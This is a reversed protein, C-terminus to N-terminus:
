NFIKEVNQYATHVREVAESIDKKKSTKVVEALQNLDTELQAVAADFDSQRESLRASLQAEKLPGMKETMAAVTSRISELDYGPLYYHYIKYLEQHFAELEAVLPRITRVLREYYMHFAETQALMEEENDSDAAQHLKELSTKLDQKGQDWNTQKDRLIGPLEAQDLKETLADLQPLLEKILAYDKEPFATHWLPYVVEHLEGLEPVSASIEEQAIEVPTEEAKQCSILCFFGLFLLTLLACIKINKM